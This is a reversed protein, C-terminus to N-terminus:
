KPQDSYFFGSRPPPGDPNQDSDLRTQRAEVPECNAAWWVLAETTGRTLPSQPPNQALDYNTYSSM